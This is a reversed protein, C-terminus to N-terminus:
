ATSQLLEDRIDIRAGQDLLMEAFPVHETEGRAMVTHLITQGSDSYNPDARDLVLRFSALGREVNDCTFAQWLSWLWRSDQRTWDMWAYVSTPNSDSISFCPSCVPGTTSSRLRFYDASTSFAATSASISATSAPSRAKRM